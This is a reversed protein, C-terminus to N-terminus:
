EFTLSLSGLDIHLLAENLHVFECLKGIVNGELGFDLAQKPNPFFQKISNESLNLSRISNCKHIGNLLVYISQGNLGANSLDLHEFNPMTRIAQSLHEM